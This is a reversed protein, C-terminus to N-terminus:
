PLVPAPLGISIPPLTQPNPRFDCHPEGDSTNCYGIVGPLTTACPDVLSGLCVNQNADCTTPACPNSLDACANCGEPFECEGSDIDCIGGDSCAHVTVGDGCGSPLCVPSVCGDFGGQEACVSDNLRMACGSGIVEATPDSPACFNYTCEVGDDCFEHNPVNSCSFATLGECTDDTCDIDDDCLSNDPEPFSCEGSPLCTSVGCNGPSGSNCRGSDPAYVCGGNFCGGVLCGNDPCVLPEGRQCVNNECLLGRCAAQAGCDDPGLCPYTATCGM